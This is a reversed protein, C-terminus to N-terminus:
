KDELLNITAVIEARLEMQRGKAATHTDIAKQHDNIDKIIARLQKKLGHLISHKAENTVPDLAAPDYNGGVGNDWLVGVRPKGYEHRVQSVTGIIGDNKIIAHDNAFVVAHENIAVRDGRNFNTM